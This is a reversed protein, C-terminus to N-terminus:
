KVIFKLLLVILLGIRNYILLRNIVIKKRSMLNFILCFIMFFVSDEIELVVKGIRVVILLMSFGISIKRVILWFLGFVSEM